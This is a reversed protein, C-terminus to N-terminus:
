STRPALHAEPSQRGWRTALYLVVLIASLVALTRRAAPVGLGIRLRALGFRILLFAAALLVVVGAGVALVTLPAAAVELMSVVNLVHPADWYLNVPRGYLAPATVEAYRGISCVLLVVALATMSRRSPVRVLESYLALLLILAAIEVSLENRTTIWLTPWVNHFTLTFNLILLALALSLWLRWGRRTREPDPGAGFFGPRGFKRGLIKM